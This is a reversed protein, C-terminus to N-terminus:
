RCQHWGDLRHAPLRRLAYTPETSWPSLFVELPHNMETLESVQQLVFESDSSVARGAAMALPRLHSQRSQIELNPASSTPQFSNM